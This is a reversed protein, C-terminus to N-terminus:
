LLGNAVLSAEVIERANKGSLGPGLVLCAFSYPRGGSDVFGVYWGMDFGMGGDRSGSGTKGYLTGRATQKARMVERLQEVSERKVPMKGVLLRRVLEAQQDPTIMVTKEGARPLWFADPRGAMDRNGYGFKDLWRQMRDAGIRRALNQFAPVCSVAFAERWTQDHNWGPFDREIGDWKWFPKDPGGILGEELGILSNWIKFTSCPGFKQKAVGPRFRYVARGGDDILVFAGGVEAKEGAAFRSPEIGKAARSFSDQVAEPHPLAFLPSARLTAAGAPLAVLCLAVFARRM